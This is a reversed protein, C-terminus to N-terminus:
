PSLRTETAQDTPRDSRIFISFGPTPQGKKPGAFNMPEPTAKHHDSVGCYITDWFTWIVDWFTLVGEFRLSVYWFTKFQGLVFGFCGSVDWVDWFM